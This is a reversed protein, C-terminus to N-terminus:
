EITILAETWHRLDWENFQIGATIVYTGPKTDAPPAISHFQAEAWRLSPVGFSIQKEATTWGAPLNLRVKFTQENPSHNWIKLSLDAKEGKKLTQGYPYFRAWGEDIGYNPDNWPFLDRLLVIRKKLADIMHDMQDRSFRFTPVVHQNILLYDQEMEQLFNLCYFYGKGPHLLNRNLLCYDDIGAPTFSDGIFFIKEGNDKEVLMADHLITQGPFYFFTLKFEKWNISSGEPMGRVKKIPNPTLCPLRYKGPNELIDQCKWSSYVPCDYKEVLPMVHDTHDHHYHTIFLGDLSKLTGEEKLQNVKDIIRQGGCDVLFGSGDESLILRSNAIPIIWSPPNEHLTEAMPMWDIEASPGLVREAKAQIHEDGFYWRLADISLYNKYAKQLKQILQTINNQVDNIVPGRSPILLDPKLEMIKKLSSILQATRAAYGHYGGIKTEPIRDQLSYWDFLKDPGYILDGVFAITEGQIEIVYSVAGRTYGPTSLVQIPIDQWTLAEGDEVTQSFPIPTTLIKTTQQQTDHFRKHTFEPWFENVNNFLDAEAKPVVAKAGNKVQIQGAWAADRRHHTFLVKDVEAPAQRPDGYIALKSKNKELIAGNVPGHIVTLVENIRITECFSDMPFLISIIVLLCITKIAM